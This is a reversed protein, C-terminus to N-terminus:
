IWSCMSMYLSDNKLIKLFSFFSFYYNFFLFSFIKGNIGDICTGGNQCPNSLCDNINNNCTSGDFGTGTCNCTFSNVGDICQGGNLCPNPDCDDINNDCNTGNYGAICSCTYDIIKNLIKM